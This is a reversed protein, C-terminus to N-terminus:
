RASADIQEAPQPQSVKRLQGRCAAVGRQAAPPWVAAWSCYRGRNRCRHPARSSMGSRIRTSRIRSIRSRSCCPRRPAAARSRGRSCRCAPRRSTTQVGDPPRERCVANEARRPVGSRWARTDGPGSRDCHRRAFSLSGKYFVGPFSQGNFVAPFLVEDVGLITDTLDLRTGGVCPHCQFLPQGGGIPVAVLDFGSGLLRLDPEEDWTITYSGGTVVSVPDGAASASFTLTAVTALVLTRVM